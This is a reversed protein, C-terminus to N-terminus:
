KVTYEESELIEKKGFSEVTSKIKQLMNMNIEIAYIEKKRTIITLFYSKWRTVPVNILQATKELNSMREGALYPTIINWHRAWFKNWVGIHIKNVENWNLILDNKKLASLKYASVELQSKYPGLYNRGINIGREDIEIKRGRLYVFYFTGLSFIIITEIIIIAKICENISMSPWILISFVLIAQTVLIAKLFLKNSYIVVKM